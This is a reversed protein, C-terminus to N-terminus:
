ARSRAATNTSCTFPVYDCGNTTSDKVRRCVVYRECFDKVDQRIRKWMFKDLAKAFTGDVGKHRAPRSEHLSSILILRLQSNRPVCM